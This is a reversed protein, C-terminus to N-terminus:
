RRGTTPAPDPLQSRGHALSAATSEASEAVAKRGPRKARMAARAPAISSVAAIMAYFPFRMQAFYGV